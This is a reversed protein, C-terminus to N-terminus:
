VTKRYNERKTEVGIKCKDHQGVVDLTKYNTACHEDIFKRITKLSDHLGTSARNHRNCLKKHKTCKKLQSKKNEDLGEAKYGCWVCQGSAVAPLYNERHCKPCRVLYPKGDDDYFNGRTSLFNNDM